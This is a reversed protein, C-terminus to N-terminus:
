PQDSSISDSHPCANLSWSSEKLPEYDEPEKLIEDDSSLQELESASGVISSGSSGGCSEKEHDVAIKVPVQNTPVKSSGINFLSTVTNSQESAEEITPSPVENVSRNASDKLVGYGLEIHPMKRDQEEYSMANTQLFTSHAVLNWHLDDLKSSCFNLFLCAQTSALIQICIKLRSTDSGWNTRLWTLLM